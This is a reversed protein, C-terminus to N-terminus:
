STIAMFAFLEERLIGSLRTMYRLRKYKGSVRESFVRTDSQM